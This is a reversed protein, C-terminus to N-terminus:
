VKEAKAAYGELCYKFRFEHWDRKSFRCIGDILENKLSM